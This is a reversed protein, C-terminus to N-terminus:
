GRDFGCCAQAILQSGVLSKESNFEITLYDRNASSVGEVLPGVGERVSWLGLIAMCGLLSGFKHSLSLDQPVFGSRTTTCQPTLLM